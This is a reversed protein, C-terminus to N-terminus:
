SSFSSSAPNKLRMNSADRGVIVNSRSVREEDDDVFFLDEPSRLGAHVLDMAAGISVGIMISSSVDTLLLVSVTAVLLVVMVVGDDIVMGMVSLPGERLFFLFVWAGMMVIFIILSVPYWLLSLFLTLLIIIVYNVRLFGVNARIRTLVDNLSTPFTFADFQIMELWPRRGGLGSQIQDKARILFSLNSGPAPSETPITGYTTM